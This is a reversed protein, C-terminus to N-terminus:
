ARETFMRRLRVQRNGTKQGVLRDLERHEVDVGVRNLREILADYTPQKFQDVAWGCLDRMIGRLQRLNGQEQGEPILANSMSDFALAGYVVEKLAGESLEGESLETLLRLLESRQLEDVLMHLGDVTAPGAKASRNYHNVLKRTTDVDHIKKLREANKGLADVVRNLTLGKRM